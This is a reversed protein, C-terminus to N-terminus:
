RPGSWHVPLEHQSICIPGRERMPHPIAHGVKHIPRSAAAPMERRRGDGVLYGLRVRAQAVSDGPGTVDVIWLAVGEERM